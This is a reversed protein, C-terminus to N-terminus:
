AEQKPACSSTDGTGDILVRCEDAPAHLAPLTLIVFSKM